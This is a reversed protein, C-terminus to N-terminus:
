GKRRNARRLFFLGPVTFIGGIIAEAAWVARGHEDPPPSHLPLYSLARVALIAVLVLAVVALTGAIMGYVIGRAVKTLPVTTKDRVGTVVSEVRDAVQVTWDTTTSRELTSSM